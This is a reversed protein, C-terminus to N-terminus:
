LQKERRDSNGYAWTTHRSKYAGSAFVVDEDNTTHKLFNNSEAASCFFIYIRKAKTKNKYDSGFLIIPSAPLPIDFEFPFRQRYVLTAIRPPPAATAQAHLQHQNRSVPVSKLATQM